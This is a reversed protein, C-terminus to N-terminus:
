TVTAVIGRLSYTISPLGVELNETDNVVIVDAAIKQRYRDFFRMLNRSGVEEEGEVLM